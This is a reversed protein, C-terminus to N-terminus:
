STANQLGELLVTLPDAGNILSELQNDTLKSLDMNAIIAEIGNSSKTYGSADHELRAGETIFRLMLAPSLSTTDIEKLAELGKQQILLAERAHRERMAKLAEIEAQRSQADQYDDWAQVRVVWRNKSSWNQFQRLKSSIVSGYLHEVARRLSREHPPLGRYVTFANFAKATEGPLRGWPEEDM